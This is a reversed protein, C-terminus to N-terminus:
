IQSMATALNRGVLDTGGGPTWPSVMKIPRNPYSQATAPSSLLFLSPASLSTLTAAGLKCWQRRTIPKQKM